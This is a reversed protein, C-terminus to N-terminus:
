SEKKRLLNLGPWPKFISVFVMATLVLQQLSGFGINLYVLRLYIPDAFAAPGTESSITAIRDMWPGLFFTGFLIAAVTVLWKLIIWGHRVFGWNTFVSFLLGTVLCSIAAPVLINIDIFNLTSNMGALEESSEIKMRLPVIVLCIGSGIWISVAIIHFSKLVQRGKMGLKPM